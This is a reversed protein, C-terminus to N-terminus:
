EPRFHCGRKIAIRLRDWSPIAKEVAKKLAERTEPKFVVRKVRRYLLERIRERHSPPSFVVRGVVRLLMGSPSAPIYVVATAARKEDKFKFFDELSAIGVIRDLRKMKSDNGDIYYPMVAVPYAVLLDNLQNLKKAVRRLNEPTVPGEKWRPLHVELLGYQAGEVVCLTYTGHNNRVETRNMKAM